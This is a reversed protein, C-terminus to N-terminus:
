YYPNHGIVDALSRTIIEPDHIMVEINGEFMRLLDMVTITHAVEGIQRTSMRALVAAHRHIIANIRKTESEASEKRKRAKILLEEALRIDAESELIEAQNKGRPSGQVHNASIMNEQM